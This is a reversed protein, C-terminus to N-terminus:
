RSRQITAELVSLTGQTPLSFGRVSHTDNTKQASNKRQLAVSHRYQMSETDINLSQIKHVLVYRLYNSFYKKTIMM